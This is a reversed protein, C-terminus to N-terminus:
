QANPLATVVNRSRALDRVGIVDTGARFLARYLDADVPANYVRLITAPHASKTARLLALWRTRQSDLTWWRGMTKGFDVSLMTVRRDNLCRGVSNVNVLKCSVGVRRDAIQAGDFGSFGVMTAVVRAKPSPAVLHEVFLDPYKSLAIQVADYTEQSQEKIEINLLFLPRGPSHEAALADCRSLIDRLPMLYATDLAPGHNARKRDHAVRLVGDVLFVDVEVGRYGLAVADFLPHANNYDNHSYARLEGTPCHPQARVEGSHGCFIAAVCALTM